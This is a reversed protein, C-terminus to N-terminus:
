ICIRTYVLFDREIIFYAIFDARWERQVQEALTGGRAAYLLQLFVTM